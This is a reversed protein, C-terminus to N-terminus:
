LRQFLKNDFYILPSHYIDTDFTRYNIDYKQILYPLSIQDRISYRCVHYYWENMMDAIVPRYIFAGCSFLRNDTFEPDNCYTNVQDMVLEGDARNKFRVFGDKVFWEIIEAEERITSREEHKFLCMECDKLEHVMEDIADTRYISFTSDIWIYIDFGPNLEHSLMKPIKARLVSTLSRHRQSFNSDDYRRYHIEHCSSDQVSWYSQLPIGISATTVLIKM